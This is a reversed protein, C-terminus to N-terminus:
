LGQLGLYGCFFGELSAPDWFSDWLCGVGGFHFHLSVHQGFGPASRQVHARMMGKMM